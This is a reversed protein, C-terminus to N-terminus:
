GPNSLTIEVREPSRGLRMVPDVGPGLSQQTRDAHRVVVHVPLGDDTGDPTISHAWVKLESALGAPLDVRLERLSAIDRIDGLSGPQWERDAYRLHM